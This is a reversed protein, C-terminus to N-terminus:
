QKIQDPPTVPVLDLSVVTCRREAIYNYFISSELDYTFYNYKRDVRISADMRDTFQEMTVYSKDPALACINDGHIQSLLFKLPFRASFVVLCILVVYMSRSFANCKKWEIGFIYDVVMIMLVFLAPISARMMLDNMLGMTVLPLVLLILFSLWYWPNRRQSVFLAMFYPLVMTCVFLAYLMKCDSYDLFRFSVEIPKPANSNAIFYLFVVVGVTFAYSLNEISFVNRLWPVIKRGKALTLFAGVIAFPLMGLFAFASTFLLPLLLPVYLEVRRFHRLFIPIVVWAAIVQPAVWQLLCWNSSYQLKMGESWWFWEGVVYIGEYLRPIIPSALSLPCSFFILFFSLLFTKLVSSGCKCYAILNLYALVLGVFSWLAFAIEGVRYSGFIKGVCAPVMYHGLYYTLMSHEGHINTYIVPWPRLILDNLVANHKGYDNMQETFRGWGLYYAMLLFFALVVVFAYGNLYVADCESSSFAKFMRKGTFLCVLLLPIFIYWQCWGVLFVVLPLAIYLISLALLWRNTIRFTM